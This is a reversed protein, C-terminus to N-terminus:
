IASWSSWSTKESDYVCSAALSRTWAWCNAIEIQWFCVTDSFSTLEWNDTVGSSLACAAAFTRGTWVACRARSGGDGLVLRFALSFWVANEWRVKKITLSLTWAGASGASNNRYRSNAIRNCVSVTAQACWVCRAREVDQTFGATMECTLARCGSSAGSCSSAICVGVLVTTKWSWASGASEFSAANFRAIQLAVTDLVLNGLDLFSRHFCDSGDFITNSQYVSSILLSNFHFSKTKKYIEDVISKEMLAHLIESFRWLLFLRFVLFFFTSINKQIAEVM